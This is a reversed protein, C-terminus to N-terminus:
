ADAQETLLTFDGFEDAAYLDGNKMDYYWGHVKLKGAECANRVCPHTLVNEVQLLVNAKAAAEVREEASLCARGTKREAPRVFQIWRRLQSKRGLSRIGGNYEILAKVGGCNSHGCVVIDEVGLHSVAYEIAAAVSADNSGAPPAVNAVNRIVFLEGMDAQTIIDPAVRSDSCGIWLLRPRQQQNALRQYFAKNQAFHQKFRQHGEIADKINEGVPARRRWGFLRKLWNIM